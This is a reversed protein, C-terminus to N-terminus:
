QQNFCLMALYAMGFWPGTYLVFLMLLGEVLNGVECLLKVIPSPESKVRSHATLRKSEEKTIVNMENGKPTMHACVGM